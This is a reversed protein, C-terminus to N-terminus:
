RTDHNKTFNYYFTFLFSIFIFIFIFIVIYYFHYHCPFSNKFYQPFFLFLVSISSIVPRRRCNGKISISNYLGIPLSVTNYCYTTNCPLFTPTAQKSEVLLLLTPYNECLAYNLGLPPRSFRSEGTLMNSRHVVSM